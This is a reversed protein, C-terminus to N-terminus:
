KVAFSILAMLVGLGGVVYGWMQLGGASKGSSEFLAKECENIKQRLGNYDRILTTTTQIEDRLSGIEGKLGQVMEFLDKNTYWQEEAM